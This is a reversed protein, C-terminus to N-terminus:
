LPRGMLAISYGTRFSTFSLVSTPPEAGSACGGSEDFVGELCSPSIKTYEPCKHLYLQSWHIQKARRVM